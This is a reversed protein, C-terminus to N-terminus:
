GAANFAAITNTDKEEGDPPAQPLRAASAPSLGFEKALTVYDRRSDRLLRAVPSAAQGKETATIWGEAALQELFQECDAYLHCLIAFTEAQDERLRGDSALQEAHRNWFAAATPRATVSDPQAVQGAPPTDTKRYMTNRRRKSETSGPQPIPGRRGM